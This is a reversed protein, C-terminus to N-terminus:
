IYDRLIDEDSFVVPKGRESIHAIKRKGPFKVWMGDLEKKGLIKESASPSLYKKTYAKEELKSDLFEQAEDEDVWKKSGNGKVLKFEPIDEGNELRRVAELKLTEELAKFARAIILANSLDDNDYEVTDNKSVLKESEKIFHRCTSLGKCWRCYSGLKFRVNGKEAECAIHLAKKTFEKVERYSTKYTDLPDDVVGNIDRPQYIHLFIEKPEIKLDKCALAAYALMQPNKEAFVPVGMGYKFDVVHLADLLSDYHRFDSTGGMSFNKTLKMSSKIEVKDEHNRTSTIGDVFSIYGSVCDRMQRDITTATHLNGEYDEYDVAELEYPSIGNWLCFEALGHAITGEFAYDKEANEFGELTLSGSCNLWRSAGSPSLRKKM